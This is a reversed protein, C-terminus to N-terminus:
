EIQKEGKKKISKIEGRELKRELDVLKIYQPAYPNTCTTKRDEVLIKLIEIDSLDKIMQITLLTRTM